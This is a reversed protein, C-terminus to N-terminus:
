KWQKLNQIPESSENVFVKILDNLFLHCEAKVSGTNHKVLLCQTKYNYQQLIHSAAHYHLACHCQM